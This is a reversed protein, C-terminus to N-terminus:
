SRTASARPASTTASTSTSGKTWVNRLRLAPREVLRHLVESVVLSAALTLVFLELGRGEFLPMDRWDAILELLILHVCFIGYSLHGVHRFAPLSLVRVFRGEPPAFVGPLIVLGAIAAYLLNKTLAAGLTTPTLDAPGALPTSAIVLLAGAALWCLGPSRGMERLVATVRDTLRDTSGDDARSRVDCSALVIGVAFWVLYSPLWLRIMTGGGDWRVSLDMLWVVSVLAMGATVAWLRDRGRHRVRALALWMLGPLVVYFAVETSLSWMQTLGDPLQDDVYIDALLLTTLWQGAGAGRNDPLLTLAAVVTVVYVPALRLARKWVYHLTSPPPLGARHRAIWPRSLLFGSLVFFVAVGVDLRSLPTGWVPRAYAGAWFAAHTALVAIAAVARLSDLAPFAVAATTRDPGVM